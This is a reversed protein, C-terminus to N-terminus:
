NIYNNSVKVLGQKQILTIALLVHATFVARPIVVNDELVCRETKQVSM